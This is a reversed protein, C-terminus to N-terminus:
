NSWKRAVAPERGFSWLSGDASSSVGVLTGRADVDRANLPDEILHLTRDRAVWIRAQTKAIGDWPGTLREPFTSINHRGTTDILSLLVIRGDASRMLFQLPHSGPIPRGPPFTSGRLSMPLFEPSLESPQSWDDITEGRPIWLFHDGELIWLGTKSEVQGAVMWGPATLLPVTRGTLSGDERLTVIRTPADLCLALSGDERPAIGLVDTGFRYVRQARGLSDYSVIWKGRGEYPAVWIRTVRGLEPASTVVIPGPRFPMDGLDPGPYSRFWPGGLREPSRDLRMVTGSAPCTVWWTHTEELTWDAPPSDLPIDAGVQIGAKGPPTYQFATPAPEPEPVHRPVPTETIVQDPSPGTTPAAEPNTSPSPGPDPPGSPPGSEISLVPGSSSARVQTRTLGLRGEPCAALLLGMMLGLPVLKPALRPM